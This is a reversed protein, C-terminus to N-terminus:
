ILVIQFRANAFQLIKFVRQLYVNSHCASIVAIYMDMIYMKNQHKSGDRDPLNIKKGTTKLHHVSEDQRCEASFQCETNLDSHM